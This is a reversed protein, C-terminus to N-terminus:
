YSWAQGAAEVRSVDVGRDSGIQNAHDADTAWVTVCVDQGSQKHKGIIFFVAPAPPPDSHAPEPEIGYLDRIRATDDAGLGARRALECAREYSAIRCSPHRTVFMWGLLAAGATGAALVDEGRARSAGIAAAAACAVATVLLAARTWALVVSRGCLDIPVAAGGTECVIFSQMPAIPLFNFHGFRTAVHLVGPVEDVKGFLRYGFLWLM